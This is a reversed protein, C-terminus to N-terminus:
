EPPGRGFVWETPRGPDCHCWAAHQGGFDIWEVFLMYVFQRRSAASDYDGWALLFGYDTSWATWARNAEQARQIATRYVDPLVQCDTIPSQLTVGQTGALFGTLLREVDSRSLDFHMTSGDRMTVDDYSTIRLPRM